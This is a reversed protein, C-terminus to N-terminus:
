RDEEGKLQYRIYCGDIFTTRRENSLSSINCKGEKYNRKAERKRNV